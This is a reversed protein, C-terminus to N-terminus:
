SSTRHRRFYFLIITLFFLINLTRELIMYFSGSAPWSDRLAGFPMPLLIWAKIWPGIWQWGAQFMLEAQHLTKVCDVEAFIPAEKNRPCEYGITEMPADSGLNSITTMFYVCVCNWPAGTGLNRKSHESKVGQNGARAPPLPSPWPQVPRLWFPQWNAISPHISWDKAIVLLCPDAVTRSQSSACARIGDTANETPRMRQHDRIVKKERM